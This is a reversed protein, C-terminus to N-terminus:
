LSFNNLIFLGFIGVNLSFDSSNAIVIWLMYESSTSLTFPSMYLKFSLRVFKTKSDASSTPPFTGLSFLLLSEIAMLSFTSLVFCLLLLQVTSFWLCSFFQRCEYTFCSFSESFELYYYYYYMIIRYYYYYYYYYYYNYLKIEGSPM